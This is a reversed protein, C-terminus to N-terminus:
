RIAFPPGGAQLRTASGSALLGLIAALALSHRTRPAPSASSM